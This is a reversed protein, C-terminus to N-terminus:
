LLNEEALLHMVGELTDIRLSLYLLAGTSVIVWVALTFLLFKERSSM